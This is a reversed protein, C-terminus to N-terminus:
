LKLCKLNLFGSTAASVVITDTFGSIDTGLLYPSSNLTINFGIPSINDVSNIRWDYPLIIPYEEPDIFNLSFNFENDEVYFGTVNFTGGTNNIFEATGNSYTGGTVFVDPPLNLYTTASFENVTLASFSNILINVTGGSNNFLTLLNNSYTGGTLYITNTVFTSLDLTYASLIDNRDFYVTKDILTTGTTFFNNSDSFGSISFTGGANNIFEAIGNSYTGGTVFVDPPLNLYTTASVTQFVADNANLTQANILVSDNGLFINSNDDCSIISNTYVGTCASITTTNGTVLLPKIVFTKNIDYSKSLKSM